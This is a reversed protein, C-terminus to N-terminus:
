HINRYIYPLFIDFYVKKLSCLMNSVYEKDYEVNICEYEDNFKSYIVLDASDCNLLHMNLQVQGYYAHKSKVVYESFGSPDTLLRLFKVDKMSVPAKEFMKLCKIELIKNKSVIVGDPSCGLWSQKPNVCLGTNKVSPEDKKYREFALKETVKGYIVSETNVSRHISGIKKDWDPKKNKSYTFISYCVSATIRIKREKSWTNSSQGATQIAVSKDFDLEVSNKYYERLEGNVIEICSDVVCNTDRELLTRYDDPGLYNNDIPQSQLHIAPQFNQVRSCNVLKSIASDPSASFLLSLKKLPPFIRCLEDKIGKILVDFFHQQEEPDYLESSVPHINDICCKMEVLPQLKVQRSKLPAGWYQRVDTCTLLPLYRARNYL